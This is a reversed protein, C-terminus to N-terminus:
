LAIIKNGQDDPAGRVQCWPKMIRIQSCSIESLFLDKVVVVRSSVLFGNKSNTQIILGKPFVSVMPILKTFLMRSQCFQLKAFLVLKEVPYLFLNLWHM